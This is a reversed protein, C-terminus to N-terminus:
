RVGPIDNGLEPQATGALQLRHVATGSSFNGLQLASSLVIDYEAGEVDIKM